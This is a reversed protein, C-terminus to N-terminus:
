GASGGGLCCCSFTLCLAPRARPLGAQQVRAAPDPLSDPVSARRPVWLRRRQLPGQLRSQPERRVLLLPLGRTVRCGCSPRLGRKSVAVCANGRIEAGRCRELGMRQRCLCPSQKGDINLMMKWLSPRVSQHFGFWVERGGGLPNSCGESATFFSRGM